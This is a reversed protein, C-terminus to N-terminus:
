TNQINTNMGPWYIFMKSHELSQSAALVEGETASYRSETEHTFHSGAYLLNWGENCLVPVKDTNCNCHQQLQLHGMSDISCDTQLYAKKAIDFTHIEEIMKSILLEKSKIFILDLKHDWHFKTNPRVLDHFPKIFSGTSRLGLLRILSDLRHDPMQLIKPPKSTKFQLFSITLHHQEPKVLKLDPLCYKMM